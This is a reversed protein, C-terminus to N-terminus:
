KGSSVPLPPSPQIPPPSPSPSPPPAHFVGTNNSRVVTYADVLLAAAGYWDVEKLRQLPHMPYGILGGELEVWSGSIAAAFKKGKFVEDNSTSFIVAMEIGLGSSAQKLSRRGGFASDEGRGLFRDSSSSSRLKNGHGNDGIGVAFLRRLSRRRSKAPLVVDTSLHLVYEVPVEATFAILKSYNAIFGTKFADDRGTWNTVAPFGTAFAISRVQGASQVNAPSPVATKGGGVGLYGLIIAVLGLCALFVMMPAVWTDRWPNFPEPLVQKIARNVILRVMKRAIVRPRDVYPMALDAASIFDGLLNGDASSAVSGEADARVSMDDEDDWFRIDGTAHDYEAKAAETKIDPVWSNTVERSANIKESVAFAKQLARLHRAAREEPTEPPPPPQENEKEHGDEGGSRESEGNEEREGESVDKTLTSGELSTRRAQAIIQALKDAGSSKTGKNRADHDRETDSRDTGSSSAGPRGSRRAPRTVSGNQGGDHGMATPRRESDSAKGGALGGGRGRTGGRGQQGNEHVGDNRAARREVESREERDVRSSGGEGGAGGADSGRASGGRSSGRADGMAGGTKGHGGSASGLDRGRGPAQRDADSTPRRGSPPEM